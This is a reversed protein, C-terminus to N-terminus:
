VESTLVKLDEVSIGLGESTLDGNIPKVVRKVHDDFDIGWREFERRATDFCFSSFIDDQVRKELTSDKKLWSIKGKILNLHLNKLHWSMVEFIKSAHM